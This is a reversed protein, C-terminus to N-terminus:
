VSRRMALTKVRRDQMASRMKGQRRFIAVGGRVAGFRGSGCRVAGRLHAGRTGCPQAAAIAPCPRFRALGFGTSVTHGISKGAPAVVWPALGTTRSMSPLLVLGHLQMRLQM